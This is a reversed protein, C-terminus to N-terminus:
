IKNNNNNLSMKNFFLCKILDSVFSLFSNRIEGSGEKGRHVHEQWMNTHTHKQVQTQPGDVRFYRTLCVLQKKKSPVSLSNRYNIWHCYKWIFFVLSKQKNHYVLLLILNWDNLFLFFSNVKLDVEQKIM